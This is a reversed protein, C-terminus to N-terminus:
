VGAAISPQFWAAVRPLLGARSFASRVGPTVAEFSLVCDPDAEIVTSRGAPVSFSEGPGVFWDDPEGEITVWARGSVVKFELPGRVTALKGDRFRFYFTGSDSLIPDLNNM